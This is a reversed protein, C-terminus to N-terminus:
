ASEVVGSEPFRRLYLRAVARDQQTFETRGRRSLVVVGGSPGSLRLILVRGDDRDSSTALLRDFFRTRSRESASTAALQLTGDGDDVYLAGGGDAGVAQCLEFLVAALEPDTAEPVPRRRPAPAPACARNGM